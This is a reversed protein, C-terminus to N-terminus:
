ASGGGPGEGSGAEARKKVASRREEDNRKGLVLVFPCDRQTLFYCLPSPDKTNIGDDPIM